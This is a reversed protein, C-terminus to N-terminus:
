KIDNGKPCYLIAGSALHRLCFTTQYLTGSADYYTIEGEIGIAQDTKVLRASEEPTIGPRSVAASFDDKGPPVPATVKGEPPAGFSEERKNEIVMFNHFSVHLAPTKGYNTYHWDWVIQGATSDSPPPAAKFHPTDVNNTLWIIPRQEQKTLQLATEAAGASKVAADAAQRTSADTTSLIWAQMGAFVALVLTAIALMVTAGALVREARWRFINWWPPSPPVPPSSEAVIPPTPATLHGQIVISGSVSVQPPQPTEM